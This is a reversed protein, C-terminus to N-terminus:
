PEAKVFLFEKFCEFAALCIQVCCPPNEWVRPPLAIELAPIDPPIGSITDSAGYKHM